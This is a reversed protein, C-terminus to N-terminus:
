AYSNSSNEIVYIQFLLYILYVFCIRQLTM